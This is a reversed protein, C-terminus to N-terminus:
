AYLFLLLLRVVVNALIGALIDDIVIGLAGPLKEARKIGFPKMIDFLRFLIGVLLYVDIRAPLFSVAFFSGVVEDIVVYSPDVVTFYHQICRIMYLACVTVVVLLFLQVSNTLDAFQLAYLAFLAIITACTGSAPLYGTPGLTTSYFACRQLIKM